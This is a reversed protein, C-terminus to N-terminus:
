SGKGTTPLHPGKADFGTAYKMMVVDTSPDLEEKLKMIKRVTEPGVTDDADLWMWYDMAAKGCAANRAAAFFDGELSLRLSRPIVNAVRIRM